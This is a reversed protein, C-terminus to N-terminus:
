APCVCQITRHVTWSGLIAFCLMSLDVRLAAVGRQGRHRTERRDTQTWGVGGSSGNLARKHSFVCAHTVCTLACARRRRLSPATEPKLRGLTIVCSRRDCRPRVLLRHARQIPTSSSVDGSSSDLARQRRPRPSRFDWRCSSPSRTTSATPSATSRPPSVGARRHPSSGQLAALPLQQQRPSVRSPAAPAARCCQTPCSNSGRPPDGVPEGM